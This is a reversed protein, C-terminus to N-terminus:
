KKHKLIINDFQEYSFQTNKLKLLTEFVDNIDCTLFYKEAIKSNSSNFEIERFDIIFEEYQNKNLIAYGYHKSYFNYGKSPFDREKLEGTLCEYVVINEFSYLYGEKTFGIEELLNKSIWTKQYGFKEIQYNYIDIYKSNLISFVNFGQNIQKVVRVPFYTNNAPNYLEIYENLNLNPM